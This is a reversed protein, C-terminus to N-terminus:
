NAHILNRWFRIFCNPRSANYALNNWYWRASIKSLQEQHAESLLEKNSLLLVSFKELMISSNYLSVKDTCLQAISFFSEDACVAISKKDNLPAGGWLWVGNLTCADVQSAFFMQSETLFKQWYMSTDLEALEPMLSRNLINHIPEARLPLKKPNSVLWTKADHYYLSIEDFALYKAYSTFCSKSEAETLALTSDAAIIFADNHTVQWKVPSLVLWSGELGYSLRLVEALPPNSPDYGLNVLFNLIAKNQSLLSDIPEPISHCDSDIIIDM